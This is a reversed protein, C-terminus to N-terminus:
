FFLAFLLASTLKCSAHFCLLFFVESNQLVIIGISFVKVVSGRSMEKRM